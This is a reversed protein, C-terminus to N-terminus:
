VRRSVEAEVQPDVRSGEPLGRGALPAEGPEALDVEVDVGRGGVAQRRLEEEGVAALVDAAEGVAVDVLAKGLGEAHPGAGRVGVVGVGGADQAVEGHQVASGAGGGRLAEVAGRSKNGTMVAAKALALSGPAVVVCGRRVAATETGRVAVSAALVPAAIEAIGCGVM